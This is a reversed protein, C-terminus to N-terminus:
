VETRSNSARSCVAGDCRLEAAPNTPDLAVSFLGSLHQEWDRRGWALLWCSADAPAKGLFYSEFVERVRPVFVKDTDFQLQVIM